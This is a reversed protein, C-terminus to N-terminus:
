KNRMILIDGRNSMYVCRRDSVYLSDLRITVQGRASVYLYIRGLVAVRAALSLRLTAGWFSMYLDQSLPHPFVNMNLEGSSCGGCSVYVHVYIGSKVIKESIGGIM